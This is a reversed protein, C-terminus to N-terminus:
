LASATADPDTPNNHKAVKKKKSVHGSYKGQMYSSEESMSSRGASSVRLLETEADTRGKKNVKASLRV